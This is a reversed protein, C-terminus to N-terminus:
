VNTSIYRVALPHTFCQVTVHVTNTLQKAGLYIHFKACDRESACECLREEGGGGGYGFSVGGCMLYSKSLYILFDLLKEYKSSILSLTKGSVPGPGLYRAPAPYKKYKVDIVYTRVFRPGRTM